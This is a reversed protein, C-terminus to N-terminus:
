VGLVYFVEFFEGHVFLGNEALLLLGIFLLLYSGVFSGKWFTVESSPVKKRDLLLELLILLLKELEVVFFVFLEIKQGVNRVFLVRVVMRLVLRFLLLLFLQLCHLSFDPLYQVTTQAFSQLCDVRNVLRLQIGHDFLLLM